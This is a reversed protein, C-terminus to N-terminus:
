KVFVTGFRYDHILNIEFPINVIMDYVNKDPTYIYITNRDSTAARGLIQYLHSRSSIELGMRGYKTKLKIKVVDDEIDPYPRKILVIGMERHSFHVGRFVRTSFLVDIKGQNFEYILKGDRDLNERYLEMLKSNTCTEIHRYSFIPVVVKIGDDIMRLIANEVASCITEVERKYRRPFKFYVGSVVSVPKSTLVYNGKMKKNVLVRESDKFLIKIEDDSMPTGSIYVVTEGVRELQRFFNAIFIAKNTDVIRKDKVVNASIPMYEQGLGYKKLMKSLEVLKEMPVDGSKLHLSISVILDKLERDDIDIFSKMLKELMEISVIVKKESTQIGVDVEDMVVVDVKPLRGAVLDYIAKDYTMVVIFNGNYNLYQAYYECIDYEDGYITLVGGLAGEYKLVVKMEERVAGAANQHLPPKYYRCQRKEVVNEGSNCPLYPVAANVKVDIGDEAMCYFFKKSMVKEVKVDREGLSIMYKTWSDLIPNNPVLILAKKDLMALAYITALTKGAGPPDNILIRKKNKVANIIRQAIQMQTDSLSTEVGDVFVRM